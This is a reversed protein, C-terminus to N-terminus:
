SSLDNLHERELAFRLSILTGPFNRSLYRVYRPDPPDALSNTQNFAIRQKGNANEAIQYRRDFLIHTHGSIVCMKPQIRTGALMHFAAILDATGQGFDGVEERDKNQRSVGRQIAFLTWTSEETREDLSGHEKLSSIRDEIRRRLLANDSIEQLSEAMSKGLSFITIHCTGSHLPGHRYYAAVWWHPRGCHMEANNIVESVLDSYSSVATKSLRFGMSNLCKDVYRVLDRTAKDRETTASTDSSLKQGPRVPFVIFEDHPKATKLVSYMGVAQVMRNLHRSTPLLDRFRKNRNNVADAVLVTAVAEACHDITKCRRRMTIEDVRNDRSFQVVRELAVMTEEPNDIFSFARPFRVVARSAVKRLKPVGAHRAYYALISDPDEPPRKFRPSSQSWRARWAALRRPRTRLSALRHRERRKHLRIQARRDRPIQMSLTVGPIPSLLAKQMLICFPSGHYTPWWLSDLEFPPPYTRRDRTGPLEVTNLSDACPRSGSAAGHGKCHRVTEHLTWPPTPRPTPHDPGPKAGRVLPPAGQRLSQCCREHPASPRAAVVVLM